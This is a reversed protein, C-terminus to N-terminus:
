QTIDHRKNLDGGQDGYSGSGSARHDTLQGSKERFDNVIPVECNTPYHSKM